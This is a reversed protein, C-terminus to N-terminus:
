KKKTTASKVASFPSTYTKKSVKQVAKIKYFYKKNKDLKKSAYKTSKTTAIKAYKGKKSTARYVEYKQAGAVKKWTLNITNKNKAKVTLVPKTLVVKKGVINTYAGYVKKGNVNSYARVKYYYSKNPKLKKHTFSTATTDKLKMYKGSKTTAYHLEYGTAKTAKNWTIKLSDAGNNTAKINSVSPAVIPIPTSKPTPTPTPAVSSKQNNIQWSLWETDELLHEPLKDRLETETLYNGEFTTVGGNWHYRVLNKAEKLNPLSRLENEECKIIELREVDAGLQISELKNFSCFLGGLNPLKSVDLKTLQNLECSLALLKSNNKVDLSSLHNDRCHLRELDKAKSVDLNVLNNENCDLYKLKINNDINLEQLKNYGCHLQEINGFHEVGVLSQINLRSVEIYSASDREFQELIMNENTDFEESVYARFNADPFNTTNIAVDGVAAQVLTLDAPNTIITSLILLSCLLLNTVRKLKM